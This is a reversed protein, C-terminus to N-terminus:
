MSTGLVGLQQQHIGVALHQLGLSRGHEQDLATADHRTGVVGATKRTQSSGSQQGSSAPESKWDRDLPDIEFPEM